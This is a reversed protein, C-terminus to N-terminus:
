LTWRSMYMVGLPVTLNDLGKGPLELIAAALGILLLKFVSVHIRAYALVVIEGLVTFLVCALFGGITKDRYIKKAFIGTARRGTVGAMGDGFAMAFVGIGYPLLYSKDYLSTGAMVTISLAYYVTGPTQEKGPRELNELISFCRCRCEGEMHGHIGTHICFILFNICVFLFPILVFHITGIFFRALIFWVFSLFLHVLKRMAERSYFIYKGLISAIFIVILIYALTISYGLAVSM